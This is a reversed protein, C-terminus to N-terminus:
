SLLNRMPLDKTMSSSRSLQLAIRVLYFFKHDAYCALGKVIGWHKIRLLLECEMPVLGGRPPMGDGEVGHDGYEVWSHAPVKAKLIFKVAVERLDVRDLAICVFGYGGSGLSSRLEYRANFLPNLVHDDLMHPSLQGGHHTTAPPSPSRNIVKSPLKLLPRTLAPSMPPTATGNQSPFPFAGARAQSYISPAALESTRSGISKLPSPQSLVVTPSDPTMPSPLGKAPAQVPPFYSSPASTSLVSSHASGPTSARSSSLSDPRQIVPRGIPSGLRAPVSTPPQLGGGTAATRHSLLTTNAEIPGVEPDSMPQDSTLSRGVVDLSSSRLLPSLGLSGGRYAAFSSSLIDGIRSLSGRRALLSPPVPGTQASRPMRLLGKRRTAGVPPGASPAVPSTSSNSPASPSSVEVFTTTLQIASPPSTSLVSPWTADVSGEGSSERSGTTDSALEDFPEIQDLSPAVTGFRYEDLSASQPIPSPEWAAPCDAYADDEPKRGGYPELYAPQLSPVTQRPSNSM